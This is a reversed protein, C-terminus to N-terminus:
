GNWRQGCSNCRWGRRRFLLPIGLFFAAALTALLTPAGRRVDLSNCAPCSLARSSETEEGVSPEAAKAGEQLVAVAREVDSKRVILKVGGIASSYFSGLNVLHEDAVFADVGELELRARHFHATAPDRFRAITALEEPM